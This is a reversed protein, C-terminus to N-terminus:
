NDSNLGLRKRIKERMEETQDGYHNGCNACEIGGFMSGISIAGDNWQIYTKEISGCAPCIEPYKLYFIAKNFAHNKTKGYGESIIKSDFWNGISCRYLVNKIGRCEVHELRYYLDKEKLLKHDYETGFYEVEEKKEQYNNSNTNEEECGIVSVSCSLILIVALLSKM